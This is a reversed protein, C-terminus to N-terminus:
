RHRGSGVQLLSLGAYSLSEAALPPTEDQTIVGNEIELGSVEYKDELWARMKKWLEDRFTEPDELAELEDERWERILNLTVRTLGNALCDMTSDRQRAGQPGIIKRVWERIM